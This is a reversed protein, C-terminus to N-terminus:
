VILLPTPGSKILAPLAYLIHHLLPLTDETGPRALQLEHATVVRGM